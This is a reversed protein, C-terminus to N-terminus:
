TIFKIKIYGESVTKQRLKATEVSYTQRTRGVPQSWGGEDAPGFGGIIYSQLSRINM